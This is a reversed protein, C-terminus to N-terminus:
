KNIICDSLDTKLNNQKAAGCEGGGCVVWQLYEVMDKHETEIVKLPNKNMKKSKQRKLEEEQLM